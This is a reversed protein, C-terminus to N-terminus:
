GQTLPVPMLGNRKLANKLATTGDPGLRNTLGMAGMLARTFLDCSEGEIAASYAAKLKTLSDATAPVVIRLHADIGLSNSLSGLGTQIIGADNLYRDIRAAKLYAAEGYLPASTLANKADFNVVVKGDEFPFGIDNHQADKLYFYLGILDLIADQIQEVIPEAM